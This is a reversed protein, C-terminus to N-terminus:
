LARRPNRRARRPGDWSGRIAEAAEKPALEPARLWYHGVQRGEDPNAIAGAELAAMDAVAGDLAPDNLDADTLGMRGLDLGLGLTDDHFRLM